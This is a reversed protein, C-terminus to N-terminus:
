RWFKPVFIKQYFDVAYNDTMGAIFDKVSMESDKEDYDYNLPLEDPNESFYYFLHKIIKEAKKEESKAESNLYLNEFMFKRFEGILNEFKDSMRIYNKGFSNEILDLVMNEIRESSNEGLENRIFAPLDEESFINARMADEFDHNLYAIRDAYKIIKGELTLAELGGSHNLIGDRVEFTLNLGKIEGNKRTELVDVVRLSQENHKFGRSFVENLAREGCHGFPTHGLDHGLAIAEALDENLRLARAISRAIQSVEITHTLRTRYHDGYPSLFVQTKRKLRRFAKSYLIRDRDRQFDTRLIDKEEPQKRGKSQASKTALESLFM